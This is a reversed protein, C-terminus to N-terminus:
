SHTSLSEVYGTPDDLGADIFAKQREACKNCQGCHYFEVPNICSFTLEIPMSKAAKKMVEKKTKAIFPAEVKLKSHLAEDVVNWLDKFFKPSADPFPNGKLPALALTDIKQQVCFVAAKSVLLLNRGPLYVESDDSDADPVMDGSMSWHQAHLDKMPLELIMLPTLGPADLADIFRELWHLEAKEWRYGSRIYVPFVEEYQKAYEALLLSSDIGGSTLVAVSKKKITM